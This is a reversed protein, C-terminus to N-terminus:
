LLPFEFHRSCQFLVQSTTLSGLCLPGQSDKASLLHSGQFSGRKFFRETILVLSKKELRQIESGWLWRMSLSDPTHIQFHSYVVDHRLHKSITCLPYTFESPHRKPLFSSLISPLFSPVSHDQNNSAYSCLNMSTAKVAEMNKNESAWLM